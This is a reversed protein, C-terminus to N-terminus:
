NEPTDCDGGNLDNVDEDPDIDYLTEVGYLTILNSKYWKYRSLSFATVKFYSILNCNSNGPIM